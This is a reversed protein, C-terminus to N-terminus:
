LSMLGRDRGMRFYVCKHIYERTTYILTTDLNCQHSNLSDELAQAELFADQAQEAREEDQSPTRFRNCFNWLLMSRCYLGWVSEKPSLSDTTRYAPSIRDMVEGPFLLAFQDSSSVYYRDFSFRPSVNAPDCIFFRPADENFAECRAVYESILTLACWCLRRTEELRIEDPNWMPDWPLMYPRSSYHNSPDQADPTLCQCQREAYDDYGSDCLIM